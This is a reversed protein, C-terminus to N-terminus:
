HHDDAGTGPRRLPHGPALRGDGRGPPTCLVIDRCGALRAPIGLM